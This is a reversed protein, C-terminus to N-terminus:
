AEYSLGPNPGPAVRREEEKEEEKLPTDEEQPAHLSALRRRIWTRSLHAGGGNTAESYPTSYSPVHPQRTEPSQNVSSNPFIRPETRSQHMIADRQFTM